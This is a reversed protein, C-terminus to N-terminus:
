DAGKKRVTMMSLVGCKGEIIFLYIACIHVHM